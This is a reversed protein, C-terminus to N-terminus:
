WSDYDTLDEEEKCINCRMRTIIGLGTGTFMYTTSGGIAGRSAGEHRHEKIFEQEVVEQEDTLTFTFM